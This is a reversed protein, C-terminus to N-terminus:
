AMVWTAKGGGNQSSNVVLAGGDLAVRTLALPLLRGGVVFTRLDVHRPELLGDCVTPHQSLMVTEQAVLEAPRESVLAAAAAVDAESAHPCVVVGHGGHGARPKIVLEGIREIVERRADGDALDFTPVSPVLPEEGLYFRVMDEVYAHVLKDDAVGAGPANVVGLTGNRLPGLLLQVLWTPRMRGDRLRDEDTRRYVVDVPRERRGEGNLWLRGRRVHLDGAGVIPLDLARALVQHEYWASNSAGDSLLVAFPNESGSPDAARITRALEGFRLDLAQRREAPGGPVRPDVAARAAAAYALGSPTRANDELVYFAGDAGRVVDYGVVPAHPYSLGVGLMWPEFHEASEVVRAPVVGARIIAREGYVDALFANLARTRQTLGRELVAWENAAVIRPVPDVHFPDAGFAVGRRALDADVDAALRGLDEDRIAGILGRYEARPAGDPAFVEDFCRTEQASTDM